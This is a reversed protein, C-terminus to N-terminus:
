DLLREVLERALLERAILLALEDLADDLEHDVLQQVVRRRHQAAGLFLLGLEARADEGLQERELNGIMRRLLEDLGGGAIVTRLSLCLRSGSDSRSRSARCRARM